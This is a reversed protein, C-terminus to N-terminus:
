KKTKAAPAADKKPAAKAKSAAPKKGNKLAADIATSLSAYTPKGKIM